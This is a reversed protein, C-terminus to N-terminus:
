GSRRRRPRAAGADPTVELRDDVIVRVLAREAEATVASMVMRRHAASPVAGTVDLRVPGRWLPTRPVPMVPLPALAPDRRLRELVRVGLRDAERRVARRSELLWVGAAVAVATLIVAAAVVVGTWASVPM